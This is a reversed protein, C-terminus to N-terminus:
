EFQKLWTMRPESKLDPSLSPFFKLGCTLHRGNRSNLMPKMEKIYRHETTGHQSYELAKYTGSAVADALQLCRLDKNPLIDTDDLALARWSINHTSLQRDSNKSRLIDMYKNFDEKTLGRRASLRFRTQGRADSVHWSIRELLLKATYFYLYYPRTFVDTRTLSPKHIAVSIATVPLQSMHSIFGVREDHAAKQFHFHWNAQKKHRETFAKYHNIISPISKTEHVIASLVFWESSGHTWPHSKFNFGEEGSEDIYAVHDIM